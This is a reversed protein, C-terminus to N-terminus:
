VEKKTKLVVGANKKHIHVSPTVGFNHATLIIDGEEGFNFFEDIVKNIQELQKATLPKERGERM